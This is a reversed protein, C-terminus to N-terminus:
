DADEAPLEEDTKPRQQRERQYPIAIDLALITAAIAAASGTVWRAGGDHDQFAPVALVALSVLLGVWAASVCIWHGIWWAIDESDTSQFEPRRTRHALFKTLLIVVFAAIAGAYFDNPSMEPTERKLPQALSPLGQIRLSERTGIMDRRSLPARKPDHSVTNVAPERGRHPGLATATGPEEGSDWELPAAPV